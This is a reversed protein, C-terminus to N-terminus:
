KGQGSVAARALGAFSRAQAPADGLQQAPDVVERWDITAFRHAILDVLQCDQAVADACAQKVLAQAAPRPMDDALRFSIAEAYVLGHRGDLNARMREPDPELRTLLAIALQLARGAAVCLQPLAHWELMWAAGDRQQRHLLARNMAGDLALAIDFLSLLTEAEVPNQKHPLTSSGGSSALKLEGVEPRAGLLCDESIRALSGTLRTLWSAFEALANRNTHWSSEDNALDLERALAARLESAQPGLASANGSAGALSVRLLRPRMQALTQAQQLLPAGWAAAIAGFSTPTAPMRRTRAALPLEAHADALDALVNLVLELRAAVVDCVDRLRLMLGTDMIDQTTAGFHVYAAHEDGLVAQLMAVLAPIPIGDRGTGAALSAPEIELEACARVIAAASEAPIIGLEGQSRALAAEVRLWAGIQAADSCYGGIEADFLLERYIGSDFPSVTM